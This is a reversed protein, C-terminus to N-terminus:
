EKKDELEKEETEKSAEEPNNKNNMVAIIQNLICSVKENIKVDGMFSQYSTDQGLATEEKAYRQFNLIEFLSSIGYENM